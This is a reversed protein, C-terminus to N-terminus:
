DCIAIIQDEIFPTMMRVKKLRRSIDYIDVFGGGVYRGHRGM